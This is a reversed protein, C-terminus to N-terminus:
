TYFIIYDKSIISVVNSFIVEGYYESNSPLTSKVENNFFLLMAIFHFQKCYQKFM